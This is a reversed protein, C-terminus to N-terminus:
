CTAAFSPPTLEEAAALMRAITAQDPPQVVMRGRSRRLGIGAFPNRNVLMGAQPRRADNFM